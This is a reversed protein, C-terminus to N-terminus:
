SYFTLGYFIVKANFFESYSKFENSLRKDPTNLFKAENGIRKLFADYIENQIHHFHYRSEEQKYEDFLAKVEEELKNKEQDLNSVVADFQKKKENYIAELDTYKQRFGRLKKIEPALKQKKDKM